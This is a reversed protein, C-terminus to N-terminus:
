QLYDLGFLRVRSQEILVPLGVRPACISERMLGEACHKANSCACYFRRVCLFQYYTYALTTTSALTQTRARSLTTTPPAPPSAYNGLFLPGIRMYAPLWGRMLGRVGADERVIASFAARIGSLGAGTM